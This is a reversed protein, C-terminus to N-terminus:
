RNRRLVKHRNVCSMTLQVYALAAGDVNKEEANRLLVDNAFLAQLQMRYEGRPHVYKELGDLAKMSAANKSILEFDETVIGSLISQSYQLKKKMWYSQAKEESDDGHVALVTCCVLAIALPATMRRM